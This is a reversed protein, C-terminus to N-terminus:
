DFNYNGYGIPLIKFRVHNHAIRAATGVLKNPVNYFYYRTSVLRLFQNYSSETGDYYPKLLCIIRELVENNDNTTHLIFNKLNNKKM